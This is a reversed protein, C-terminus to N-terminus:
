TGCINAKYISLLREWVTSRSLEGRVMRAARIGKQVCDEVKNICKDMAVVLGDVDATKVLSGCEYHSILDQPGSNDYCIPYLGCSLAEKLATPGTDGYSPLIFFQADKFEDVIKDAPLTGELVIRDKLGQQLIMTEIRSKAEGEGIMVLKTDQRSIMAFAEVADIAGKREILSGVYVIKIPAKLLEQRFSLDESLFESRLPHPVLIGQEGYFELLGCRSAESEVLLLKARQYAKRECFRALRTRLDIREQVHKLKLLNRSLMALLGQVSVIANKSILTALRGYGTEGGWGQIVDPKLKKVFLRIHWFFRHWLFCIEFRKLRFCHWHAGNYDFDVHEVILGVVPCILHLEIEKPPPLHGLIWSWAATPTDSLPHKAAKLRLANPLGCIWVVKM